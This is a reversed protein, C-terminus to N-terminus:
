KSGKVKINKPLDDTTVRFKKIPRITEYRTWEFPNIGTPTRKPKFDQKNFVYVYGAASKKLQAMTAKSIAFKVNGTGSTSYMSDLDKPINKANFIAMFIAIDLLQTAHSAPKGDKKQKADVTTYAQVPKFVKITGNDSGHFLYTGQKALNQLLLKSRSM